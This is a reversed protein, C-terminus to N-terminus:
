DLDFEEAVKDRDETSKAAKQELTTNQTQMETLMAANIQDAQTAIEAMTADYTKDATEIKTQGDSLAQNYAEESQQSAQEIAVIATKYETLFAQNAQIIGSIVAKYQTLGENDTTIAELATAATTLGTEIPELQASTVEEDSEKAAEFEKLTILIPTLDKYFSYVEKYSKNVKELETYFEDSSMIVDDLVDGVLSAETENKEEEMKDDLKITLALFQDVNTANQNLDEITSTLEYQTQADLTEMEGLIENYATDYEDFVKVYEEAVMPVYYYKWGLYGGGILLCVILIISIMLTRKSKKPKTEQNTPEM